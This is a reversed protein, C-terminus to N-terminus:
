EGENGNVELDSADGGENAELATTLHELQLDDPYALSAVGSGHVQSLIEQAAVLTPVYLPPEAYTPMLHYRHLPEGCVCLNSHKLSVWTGHVDASTPSFVLRYWRDLGTEQALRRIDKKAWHGLEIQLIEANFAGLENSIEEATRGELSVSSPYSDQLHLMLLKQQSEGYERFRQVEEDSGRSALYIFTIATEVFCRLLIGATDRAWLVPNESVLLYLRVCRAFLGHLVEDKSPDYLDYRIRMALRDLYARAEMVNRNVISELSRFEDRRVPRAGRVPLLVPKCPALDYTHRWFYKVWASAEKREAVLHANMAVRVFSDVHAREDPSCDGPYRPLLDVVPMDAPFLMKGSKVLRAFSCMRVETALSGRGDMLDGILRRLEGLERDPDIRGGEELFADTVVWSAPSDPFFSLIRGFPQLFLERVMRENTAILNPGRDGLNAFDSLFGIAPSEAEWYEDLVDMFAYFPQHIRGEPVLRRLSAIWLHEPLLDRDWHLPSIPLRSLATALSSGVKQHKALPTQDPGRGKKKKGQRKGSM